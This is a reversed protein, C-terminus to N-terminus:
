AVEPVAVADESRWQLTVSDGIAHRTDAASTPPGPGDRRHPRVDGAGRGPRAHRLRLHHRGPAPHTDARGADAQAAEPGARGAARGAVAGVAPQGARAGAGRAPAPRRQAAVAAPGRLGAAVGPAADRGRGAAARGAARTEHAPRLGRQRGREHAPVARLEPVRHEGPPSLAARRAGGPRRDPGRRGLGIRLRRDPEAHDDQRLRQPGAALLVRRAAFARNLDLPYLSSTPVGSGMLAEEITDFPHKRIARRGPFDKPNWLDAWSTPAKRGKFADTRYALVTSYVNTGVGYPSMFQKPITRVAPDNELGHKELYVKGGETLLLIAPQSIKAMDWTYNKTDVMSKIQAVPEANAQVGIVEIGTKQTFPKYFCEGYAKTYVGGDDRVVIRKSQARAYKLAVPSSLLAMAAGGIQIARRRSPTPVTKETM